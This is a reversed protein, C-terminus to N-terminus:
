QCRQGEEYQLHSLDPKRHEKQYHAIPQLRKAEAGLGLSSSFIAQCLVGLFATCCRYGQM